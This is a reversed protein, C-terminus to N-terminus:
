RRKVRLNKELFNITVPGSGSFKLKYWPVNQLKDIPVQIRRMQSLWNSSGANTTFLVTYTTGEVRTSYAITFDTCSTSIGAIVSMASLTKLEGIAGDIFPKTVFNWQIPTLTTTNGTTDHVSTSEDRITYMRNSADIGSLLGKVTKLHRLGMADDMHWIKLVTDYKLIANIYTLFPHYLVSFYVYKGSAGSNYSVMITDNSTDPPYFRDVYYKVPGSIRVATAGAYEYIGDFNVWYLKGQCKTIASQYYCGIETEIDVIQYTGPASGYLIHMSRASFLILNDNYEVLGTGDGAMGTVVISGADNATTWDTPNNLACFSLVKGKLVYIRGKFSAIIRGGAPFNTDSIVSATSLSPYTQFYMKDTSNAFVIFNTTGTFLEAFNGHVSTHLSTSVVLAASTAATDIVTLSSSDALLHYRDEAIGYARVATSQTFNRFTRPPRVTIAPYFRTDVNECDIIQNDKLNLAASVDNIGGDFMINKKINQGSMPRWQAM